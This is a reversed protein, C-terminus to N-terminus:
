VRQHGVVRKSENLKDVSSEAITLSKLFEVQGTQVDFIAGVVGFHGSDVLRKISANRSVIERVTHQVHRRALRKMIDLQEAAPKSPFSRAEAPDISVAIENLVEELHACGVQAAKNEPTISNKLALTLLSSDAHGMVVVLKVGGVTAAYEIGGIARTGIVAGPTRIVYAEGLGLDFIMEVPTQSDIGTFFAAIPLQKEGNTLSHRLDRDLPHGEVFRRNGEALISIVQQPTLTDRAEILSFDVNEERGIPRKYEDKLGVMQFNLDFAPATKREFDHILSLVDPDIYDTRRADLMVHSGRPAERLASELAARNLFSVQNPLEIHLIERDIHKEHIRKIPVRLNSYLIFLLAFVLGLIIGILLDTMVIAFVTVFFPLFQCRGGSWMQKFLAPSALKYGTLVLIAALVSLPIMNLVQPIMLVCGLLLAGHFITSVKTQVGSNVNVSGRIVVSTVPLGGLLGCLSNGIGQAFLERNPPSIRQKTDLKDVADLNLLTELSAVIAITVAGIYVASNTLQTFDPFRLYNIAGSLKEPVPVKVYHTDKLVWGGAMGLEHFVYALVTGLIVVLLPAPVLSSKLFRIKDWVILFILSVLGITMPGWQFGDEYTFIERMSNFFKIFAEGITHDAEATHQIAGAGHTEHVLGDDVIESMDVAHQFPIGGLDKENGLLLPLQSLILIVGIAALLGKIVSSPFFASLAGAKLIGLVLQILGAIFVALLFTEFSKLYVIQAAVIATLGAAPGSVSTHSGSFVGVVIGGIIGAILGSMPDAGSGIAIGLCLPLAVLFVITGSLLDKALTAPTFKTQEQKNMDNVTLKSNKESSTLYIAQGCNALM